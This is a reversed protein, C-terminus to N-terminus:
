SPWLWGFTGATVLAYILGDFMSKLTTGWSRSYWISHQMLALSYGVFATAGSFRFVALYPAGPELARGAIYAAFIGVIVSYLFWLALSAGMGQPGSKLITVFAVPGKKLKDNFEASQREKQSGAFPVVYDGPPINFPRLADTVGDENPLKKYDNDHYRFLMHIISSVIFVFVASLVIPLWLSLITVM